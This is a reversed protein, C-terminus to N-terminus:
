RTPQAKCGVSGLYRVLNALYIQTDEGTKVAYFRQFGADILFPRDGTPLTVYGVAVAPRGDTDHAIIQVSPGSAISDGHTLEGLSSIRDAVSGVNEFVAHATLEQGAYM